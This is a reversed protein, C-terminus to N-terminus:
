SLSIGRKFIKKVFFAEWNWFYSVKTTKNLLAKEQLRSASIEAAKWDAKLQNFQQPTSSKSSAHFPNDSDTLIDQTVDDTAQM